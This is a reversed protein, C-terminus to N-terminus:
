VVLRDWLAASECATHSVPFAIQTSVLFSASACACADRVDNLRDIYDTDDVAAEDDGYQDQDRQLRIIDFVSQSRAALRSVIPKPIETFLDYLKNKENGIQICSFFSIFLPFRLKPSSASLLLKGAADSALCSLPDGAGVSGRRLVDATM